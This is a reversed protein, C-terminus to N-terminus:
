EQKQMNIVCPLEIVTTTKQKMREEDGEWNMEYWARDNPRTSTMPWASTFAPARRKSSSPESMLISQRAHFDEVRFLCPNSDLNTRAGAKAKVYHIVIMTSIHHRKTHSIHSSSYPRHHIFSHTHYPHTSPKTSTITRSTFSPFSHTYSCINQVCTGDRQLSSDWSPSHQTAHLQQLSPIFPLRWSLLHPFQLGRIISHKGWPAPFSVELEDWSM